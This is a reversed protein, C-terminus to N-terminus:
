LLNVIFNKRNVVTRVKKAAEAEASFHGGLGSVTASKSAVWTLDGVGGGKRYHIYSVERVENCYRPSQYWTNPM